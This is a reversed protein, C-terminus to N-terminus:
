LRLGCKDLILIAIHQGGVSVAMSVANATVGFGKSSMYVYTPILAIVVDDRNPSPAADCSGTDVQALNRVRRGCGFDVVAWGM